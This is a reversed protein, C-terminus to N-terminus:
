KKALCRKLAVYIFPFCTHGLSIMLERLSGCSFFVPIQSKLEEILERHHSYLSSDHAQYYYNLALLNVICSKLKMGPKRDLHSEKLLRNLRGTVLNLSHISKCSISHTASTEHQRYLYAIMPYYMVRGAPLIASVVFLLDECFNLNELFQLHNKVLHERRYICQVIFGQSPNFDEAFSTRGDKCVLHSQPPATVAAEEPSHKFPALNIKLVDLNNKETLDLLRPLCDDIIVDDADVFWVYEGQAKKLGNNRAAAVGQNAQDLLLLNAHKRALGAIIEMSKDTSGDNILVIEFATEDLGQRYLSELCERIYKEANYVPIIISIRKM